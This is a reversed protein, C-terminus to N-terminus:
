SRKKIFNNLLLHDGSSGQVDSASLWKLVIVNNARCSMRKLRESEGVHLLQQYM